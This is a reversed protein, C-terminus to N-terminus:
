QQIPQVLRAQRREIERVMGEFKQTVNNRMMPM